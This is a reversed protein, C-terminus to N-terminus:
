KPAVWLQRKNTNAAYLQVTTGNATAGGTVDLVKGSATHVIQGKANVSWKQAATGNCDWLEIKNGNASLNRSNDLCKGLAQISSSRM